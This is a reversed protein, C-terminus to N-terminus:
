SYQSTVALAAAAAAAAAPTIYLKVLQGGSLKGFNLPL